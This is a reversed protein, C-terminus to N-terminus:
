ALILTVMLNAAQANRKSKKREAMGDSNHKTKSKLNEQRNESAAHANHVNYLM